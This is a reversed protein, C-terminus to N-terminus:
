NWGEEMLGRRFIMGGWYNDGQGRLWIRTKKEHIDLSQAIKVPIRVFYGGEDVDTSSEFIEKGGSKRLGVLIASLRKAEASGISSKKCIPCYYEKTHITIEEGPVDIDRMREIMKRGCHICINEADPKYELEIEDGNELIHTTDVNDRFEAEVDVDVRFKSLV